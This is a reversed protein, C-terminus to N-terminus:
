YSAGAGLNVQVSDQLGPTDKFGYTLNIKILNNEQEQTVVVETIKLFPLWISVQSIVDEEIQISTESNIPQFLHRRVNLGLNPQFIREGREIKLLSELNTKTSELTSTSMNLTEFTVPLNFGLLENVTDVDTTNFNQIFAV